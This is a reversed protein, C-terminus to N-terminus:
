CIRVLPLINLRLISSYAMYKREDNSMAATPCEASSAIVKFGTPVKSVYYTHSMWCQNDGEMGKFLVSSGSLNVETKGYERRQSSKVEGGLLHAILQHGYCIGLIPINLEFLKPDM